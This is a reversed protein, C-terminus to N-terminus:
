DDSHSARGFERPGATDKPPLLPKQKVFLGLAARKLQILFPPGGDTPPRSWAAAFEAGLLLASSYLYISYLFVLAATLSGYVVTLKTARDFIVGSAFSILQLLAATVSAGVLGAHFQLGRAPVFRYLLMVVVVSLAFSEGRLVGGAVAGLDLRELARQALDNLLTVGATLLVLVAAGVILVLDVLKGRVMPRSGSSDMAAELGARISAMMGTAAWAFVVLGLLGVASAPKAIATIADAVDQRGAVSVPLADVITKVVDNRIGDNQLVLGFISVLVIALPAISFLVRYAIGAAHQGCQDAFFRDISEFTVAGVRRAFAAPRRMLGWM